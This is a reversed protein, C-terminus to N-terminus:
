PKCPKGLALEKKLARPMKKIQAERLLASSRTFGDERHLLSVPVRTRTYAAGRGSNHQKLRAAVDKAIGTYLTGDACHVIYVSWETEDSANNDAMADLM